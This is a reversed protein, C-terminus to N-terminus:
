FLSCNKTGKKKNKELMKDAKALSTEAKSDMEKKAALDIWLVGSVLLPQPKTKMGFDERVRGLGIHYTMGAEGKSLVHNTMLWPQLDMVM